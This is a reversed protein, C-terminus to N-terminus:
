LNKPVRSPSRWGSFNGNLRINTKKDELWSIILLIVKRRDCPCNLKKLLRQQAVKDAATQGNQYRVNM